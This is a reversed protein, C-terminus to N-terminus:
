EAPSTLDFCYIRINAIESPGKHLHKLEEYNRDLWKKAYYNSKGVNPSWEYMVVLWLRKKGKTLTDMAADIMEKDNVITKALISCQFAGGSYRKFVGGPAGICLVADEAMKNEIIHAVTSRVDEKHYRKDFQYNTYAYASFGTMTVLAFVALIKGTVKFKPLLLWDVGNAIFLLFGFLGIGTYRVNYSINPMVQNLIIIGIIPISFILLLLSLQSRNKRLSWLGLFFLTGYVAMLSITEFLYPQLVSFTQNLHLERLSPGISFGACYSYITYLIFEITNTDKSFGATNNILKTFTYIIWPLYLTAIVCFAGIWKFLQIKFRKFFLIIYIFELL